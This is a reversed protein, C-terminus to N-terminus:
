RALFSPTMIQGILARKSTKAKAGSEKISVQATSEGDTTASVKTTASFGEIEQGGGGLKSDQRGGNVEGDASRM